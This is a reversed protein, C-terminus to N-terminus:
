KKKLLTMERDAFHLMQYEELISDQNDGILITNENNVEWYRLWSGSSIVDNQSYVSFHNNEFEFVVQVHFQNGNYEYYIFCSDRELKITDGVNFDRKECSFWNGMIAAPKDQSFVGSTLFLFVILIIQKLKDM